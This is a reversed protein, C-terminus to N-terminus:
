ALSWLRGGREERVKVVGDNKAPALVVDVLSDDPLYLWESVEATTLERERPQARMWNIFRDRLVRAIETTNTM